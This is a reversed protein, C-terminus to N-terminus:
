FYIPHFVLGNVRNYEFTPFPIKIMNLAYFLSKVWKKRTPIKTFDIDLSFLFQRYRELHPFPKGNYYKPNDFEYIMGNASYGFAINLWPPIKNSHYISYINASLWYTHANYDLFFSEMPTTGLHKHLKPYPSPSYSFKMTVIQKDFLAEQATFLTAGFTNAAMDSWSFGWGEYMGDFIEIPTQFVLGLSGGYWLAKNKSVGAKRLSRYGVASEFYASYAHGGKDMQLYGGADNYWHFPVRKHDKYWVFKLYSLGSVYATTIAGITTYLRTKQITDPYKFPYTDQAFLTTSVSLMLFLVIFRIIQKSYVYHETVFTYIITFLKM